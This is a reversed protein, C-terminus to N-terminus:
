TTISAQAARSAERIRRNLDSIATEETRGIGTLGDCRAEVLGPVPYVFDIVAFRRPAPRWGAPPPTQDIAPRAPRNDQGLHPM